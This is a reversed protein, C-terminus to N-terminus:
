HQTQVLTLIKDEKQEITQGTRIAIICKHIVQIHGRSHHASKTIREFQSVIEGNWVPVAFEVSSRMQVIVIM